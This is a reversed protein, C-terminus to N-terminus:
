GLRWKLFQEKLEKFDYVREWSEGMYMEWRDGRYDTRYHHFDFDEGEEEEIEVYYTVEPNVEKIKM